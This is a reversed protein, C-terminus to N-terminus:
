QKKIQEIINKVKNRIRQITNDINKPSLELVNSIEQYNLGNILLNYVEKEHNSLSSDIKDLLIKYNEKETINNLPNFKNNDSIFDKLSSDHEKYVYDLSLADSVMRNKISAYRNIITRIRNQVCRSIYTELKSSDTEKYSNIADTFAILAEQRFDNFDINLVYAIKKYKKMYIDIIYDYKKYLMDKANDNNESILFLLESDSVDYNKM